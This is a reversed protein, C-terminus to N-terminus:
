HGGPVHGLQMMMGVMDVLGWREVIKGNALRFESIETVSFSKGTAPLNFLTGSQTGTIRALITVRDDEAVIQIPESHYDPMAARLAKAAQVMADRGQAPVDWARKTPHDIFDPAVAQNIFDLNGKNWVEDQTQLVLAKNRQELETAM